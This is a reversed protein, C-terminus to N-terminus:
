QNEEGRSFVIVKTKILIVVIVVVIIPVIILLLTTLSLGFLGGIGGGEAPNVTVSIQDQGNVYGSKNASATITGTITNGAEPATFTVQLDGDENTEGSTSSFVGNLDSSLTVTANAIPLEDSAVHVKMTTSAKSDVTLLDADVRVALTRPVVSLKIQDSGGWYGTKTVTATITVNLPTLTQPATYSFRLWGENDTSGVQPSLIGGNDSALAVSVGEVPLANYMVHVTGNISAQSKLVTSTAAIEPTLRPVVELYKYSSGDANGSKSARAMIRIYTQEDVSPAKYTASFFGSTDTVGSQPTLTGGLIPTLMIGASAVPTPGVMVRVTVSVQGESVMQSHSLIISVDLPTLAQVSITISATNTSIVGFDDMVRINAQYSGVLPYKHDFVSLTTWSTNLGDGFDFFYKDVRRDDSSNTAIFIIPQNPQVLIKDSLLRAVPRANIYGNPASLFDIFDLDEGNSQVPNGKGEPNLSAHYPGTEHGWYNYEANIPQSSTVNMGHTNGYVDNFHPSTSSTANNFYIGVDNYSISNRTISTSVKSFVNIGRSNSSLTNNFV